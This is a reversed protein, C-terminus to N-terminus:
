SVASERPASAMCVFLVPTGYCLVLFVRQLLGDAGMLHNEVLFVLGLQMLGSFAGALRLTVRKAPNIRHAAIALFFASLILPLFVLLAAHGHLQSHFSMGSEMRSACAPIRPNCDARAFGAVATAVSAILILVVAVMAAKGAKISQIGLAALLMAVAMGAFGSIMIWPASADMAALLSVTDYYSSYSPPQLPASIAAAAFFSLAAMLAFKALKPRCHRGNRSPSVAQISDTM